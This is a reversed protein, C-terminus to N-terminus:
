RVLRRAARDPEVMFKGNYEGVAGAAPQFGPYPSYASRPGNGSTASMQQLGDGAAAPAPHFRGRTALNGALAARPRSRRSRGSPRPRCASDRGLPRLRRGRLLQCPVGARRTSPRRAPWRSSAVLRRRTAGLLAAGDLGAAQSAAWGDSLWLEPRRYGGDDIFALWEGNTVLRDALRVARALGPAAADRQRLRLGRRRPRDAVCGAPSRSALDAAARARRRRDRPPAQYAPQLPNRSLAHKIDMLILEQHQQEHHLGLEVLAAAERWAADGLGALLRAMAPTSTPATPARDREVGPRSLLGRTPGRTARGSRRTTPTSSSASAPDFSATAPVLAACCSPRSSGPPIPGTGSPRAPTPCRSCRRTRPRCRRRWPRPPKGSRPMVRRWGRATSRWRCATM